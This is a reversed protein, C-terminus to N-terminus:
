YNYSQNFRSSFFRPNLGGDKLTNTKSPPYNLSDTIKYSTDRSLTEIVQSKKEEEYVFM